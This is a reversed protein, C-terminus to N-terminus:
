TWCFSNLGNAKRRFFLLIKLTKMVKRRNRHFVYPIGPEQSIKLPFWFRRVFVFIWIRAYFQCKRMNFIFNKDCVVRLLHFNTRFIIMKGVFKRPSNEFNFLKISIKSFKRYIDHSQGVLFIEEDRRFLVGLRKSSTERFNSTFSAM